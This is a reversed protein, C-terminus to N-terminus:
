GSAAADAAAPAAPGPAVRPMVVVFTTGQGPTSYVEIRGGLLDTALHHVVSLGLGTGGRGLRTTFFPDFIRSLHEAAIGHGNDRFELTVEDAGSAHCAIRIEGPQDPDFAHALANTFFNTILQGIAGPYSDMRLGPALDLHLRLPRHRILHELTAVVDEITTRLDFDRRREAAQDASVQKVSRVLEAARALNREVLECAEVLYRRDDADDGRMVPHPPGGGHGGHGGQARVRLSSAVVLANGLPTNLEHALGAVLRGMAALRESRVLQQQMRTNSELTQQLTANAQELAQTREVVRQELTTNLELIRREGAQRAAESAMLEDLMHNYADALVRVEGFSSLEFPRPRGQGLDVLHGTLAQIPRLLRRVMLAVALTLLVIAVAAIGAVAGLARQFPQRAESMPFNAALIWDTTRMPVYTALMAVGRSNVTDTSGVFGQALARDYGANAGPQAALRLRRAPDPHMLMLRERTTIFVYGSDGIRHQSLAQAYAKGLLRFSGQLVGVVDGKDGGSRVPVAMAVLPDGPDAAAGFPTGIRLRGSAMVDQVLALVPPEPEPAPPGGPSAHRVRGQRDFLRVGQDFSLHMFVRSDLLAQTAAADAMSRTSLQAAIGSLVTEANALKQDLGDAQASLMALQHRGALEIFRQEFLQIAATAAIALTVAFVLGVLLAARTALSMQRLARRPSSLRALLSHNVVPM